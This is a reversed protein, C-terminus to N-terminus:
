RGIYAKIEDRMPSTFVTNGIFDGADRLEISDAAAISRDPSAQCDAGDVLLIACPAMAVLFSLMWGAKRAIM